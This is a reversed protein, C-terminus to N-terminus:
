LLGLTTGKTLLGATIAAGLAAGGAVTLGRRFARAVLLLIAASTAFLLNDNSVGGGIFGFTPQFAVALAGVPWVWPASPLAERLFGFCLLITIGALLASLLRM